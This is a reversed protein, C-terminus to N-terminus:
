LSWRSVYKQTFVFPVLIKHRDQQGGLFNNRSWFKACIMNVKNQYKGSFINEQINGLDKQGGIKTTDLDKQGGNKARVSGTPDFKKGRASSGRAIKPSTDGGGGPEFVM